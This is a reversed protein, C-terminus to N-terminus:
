GGAEEPREEHRFQEKKLEAASHGLDQLAALM